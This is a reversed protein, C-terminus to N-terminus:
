GRDVIIRCVQPCGSSFVLVEAKAVDWRLWDYPTPFPWFAAVLRLTRGVVLTVTIRTQACDMLM